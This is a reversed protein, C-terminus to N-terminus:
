VGDTLSWTLTAQYQHGSTVATTSSAPPVTLQTPSMLITTELASAQNITFLKVASGGTQVQYSPMDTGLQQFTLYAGQLGTPHATDTQDVFQAAQVSVTFPSKNNRGDTYTLRDTTNTSAYTTQVSPIPHQGFNLKPPTLSIKTIESIFLGANINNLATQTTGDPAGSAPLVLDKTSLDYTTDGDTVTATDAFSSNVTVDNGVSPITLSYKATTLDDKAVGVRFTGSSAVALSYQGMSTLAIPAASTSANAADIHAASQWTGNPQKQFLQFHLPVTSGNLLTEGTGRLGDANTDVWALGGLTNVVAVHSSTTTINGQSDKYSINVSYIGPTNTDVNDTEGVLSAHLPKGDPGTLSDVSDRWQWKKGVAVTVPKLKLSTKIKSVKITYTTGAITPNAQDSKWDSPVLTEDDTLKGSNITLSNQWYKTPDVGLHALTDVLGKRHYVTGADGSVHKTAIVDQPDDADVVNYTDVVTATTLNLVRRINPLGISAIYKDPLQDASLGIQDPTITTYFNADKLIFNGTGAFLVGYEPIEEDSNANFNVSDRLNVPIDNKQKVQIPLAMSYFLQPEGNLLKRAGDNPRFYFVTRGDSTNPLQYATLSQIDFDITGDTEKANQLTKLYDAAAKQADALTSTVQVPLIVYFGYMQHNGTPRGQYATVTLTGTGGYLAYGSVDIFFNAFSPADTLTPATIASASIAQTATPKATQDIMPGISAANATAATLPLSSRTKKIMTTRTERQKAAAVRNPQVGLMLTM